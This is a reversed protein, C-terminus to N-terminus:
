DEQAENTKPGEGRTGSETEETDGGHVLCAM